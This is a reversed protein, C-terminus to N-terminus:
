KKSPFHFIQQSMPATMQDFLSDRLERMDMKSPLADGHLCVWSGDMVNPDAASADGISALAMRPNSAFLARFADDHSLKDLLKTAVQKSLCLPSSEVAADCSNSDQSELTDNFM